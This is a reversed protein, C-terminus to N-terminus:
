RSAAAARSFSASPSSSAAAGVRLGGAPSSASRGISLSSEPGGTSRASAASYDHRNEGGDAGLQRRDVALAQREDADEGHHAQQQEPQPGRETQAAREDRE